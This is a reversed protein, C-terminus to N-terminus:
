RTGRTWFREQEEITLDTMNVSLLKNLTADPISAKVIVVSSFEGSAVADRFSVAIAGPNDDDGYGDIANILEPAYQGPYTCIRQAWVMIIKM